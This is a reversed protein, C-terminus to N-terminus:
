QSQLGDRLSAGVKEIWPVADPVAAFLSFFGHVMGPAMHHEVPVGTEALRRALVEGEDRLPDYQATVITAPPLNSLDEHRAIAALTASAPAAPGVYAQWFWKMMETSLFGGSAGNEQYSKRTFDDDAVPYILLQYRIAPGNRDRSLVAVAAALNAGASDGSVALRDADVGLEEGNKSAWVMADYCDDLPAPYPNEPALRYAVSLIASDSANAIARCTADHTDLTGIVWGGGHYFMTLPPPGPQTQAPIYLRADLERGDLPIRLDRCTEVEPPPGFALPQDSIERLQAPTITAFDPQPLDAMQEYLAAIQVNLPM